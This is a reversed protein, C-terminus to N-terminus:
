PLKTKEFVFAGAAVSSVNELMISVELPELPVTSGDPMWLFVDSGERYLRPLKRQIRM